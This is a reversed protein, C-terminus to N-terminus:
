ASINWWNIVLPDVKMWLYNLGLNADVYRLSLHECQCPKLVLRSLLLLLLLILLLLLLLWLWLTLNFARPEFVCSALDMPNLRLLDVPHMRKSNALCSLPQGLLCRAAQWAALPGM